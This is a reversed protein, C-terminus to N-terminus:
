HSRVEFLEPYGLLTREGGLFKVIKDGGILGLVMRFPDRFFAVFFTKIPSLHGVLSPSKSFFYRQHSPAPLVPNRISDPIVHIVSISFFGDALAPANFRIVILLM